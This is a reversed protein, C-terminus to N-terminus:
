EKSRRYCELCWRESCRCRCVSCCRAIRRVSRAASVDVFQSVGCHLPGSSCSKSIHHEGCRRHCGHNSNWRKSGDIQRRERCWRKSRRRERGTGKSAADVRKAPALTLPTTRTVSSAGVNAAGAVAWAAVVHLAGFAGRQVSTWLSRSAAACVGAAAVSVVIISVANVIAIMIAAGVPAAGVIAEGGAIARIPTAASARKVSRWHKLRRCRLLWRQGCCWRKSRYFGVSAATASGTCYARKSCRGRM